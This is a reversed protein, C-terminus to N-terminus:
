RSLSLGILVPLQSFGAALMLRAEEGVMSDPECTQVPKAAVAEAKPPRTIAAEIQELRRVTGEYPEAIPRGDTREHV